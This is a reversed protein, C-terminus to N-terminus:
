VDFFERLSSFIEVAKFRVKLEDAQAIAQRAGAPLSSLDAAGSICLDPFVVCWWNKGAAEGLSVRLATYKGAPLKYSEYVRTPFYMECLSVSARYPMGQETLTQNAASEIETLDDEVARLAEELNEANGCKEATKELIADRVLLKVAQDKESDSNALVHLRLVNEALCDCQASFGTFCLLVTLVFGCMLARGLLEIKGRNKM